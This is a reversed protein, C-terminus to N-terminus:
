LLSQMKLPPANEQPVWFHIAEQLIFNRPNLIQFAVFVFPRHKLHVLVQTSPLWLKQAEPNLEPVVIKEYTNIIKLRYDITFSKVSSVEINETTLSGTM